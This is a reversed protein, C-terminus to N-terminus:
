IKHSSPINPSGLYIFGIGMSSHSYFEDYSYVNKLRDWLWSVQSGADALAECYYIDHFGVIGNPAMYKQYSYFDHKVDDFGHAGDIFLFDIKRGELMIELMQHSKPDRSYRGIRKFNYEKALKEFSEKQAESKPIDEPDLSICLEPKVIEAWAALSAGYAVGLEMIVKPKAKELATLAMELEFENQYGFWESVAKHAVEKPTM